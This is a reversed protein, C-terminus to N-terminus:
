KEKRIAKIHNKKREYKKFNRLLENHWINIVKDSNADTPLLLQLRCRKKDAFIEAGYKDLIKRIEIGNIVADESLEFLEYIMMTLCAFYRQQLKKSKDLDIM